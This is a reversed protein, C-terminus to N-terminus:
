NDKPATEVPRNLRFPFQERTTADGLDAEVLLSYDGPQLKSADTYIAVFGDGDPVLYEAGGIRSTKTSLNEELTVRFTRGPATVRTLVRFELAGRSPLALDPTISAARVSAFTYHEVVILPRGTGLEGVSAAVVAPSRKVFYIGVCLVILAMAAAAAGVWKAGFAGPRRRTMGSLAGQESLIELGERLRLSEEVDSVLSVDSLLQDEFAHRDTESLRGSIYDQLTVSNGPTRTM